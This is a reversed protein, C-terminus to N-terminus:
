PTCGQVGGLATVPSSVNWTGPVGNIFTGTVGINSITNSGYSRTTTGITTKVTAAATCLPCFGTVQKVDITTGAANFAGGRESLLFRPVGNGDYVFSAIFEYNPNVQVSYGYGPQSANFWHGSVDLNNGSVSPCGTLFAQMPESGTQGDMNYQFNFTNASTITIIAKGIPTLFNSTGNWASRSLNGSWENNAGPQVGQMYYWTPTGDELYTYWIVALQSGSPYVFLGHGPRLANYYSGVKLTPAATSTNIVAKVDVTAATGGTNSPKLYWRGPQLNGGSITITQNPGALNSNFTNAGPAAEITPGVPSALRATGLTVNGGSGATTFTVSTANAPVDFYLKNHTSGAPLTVSRAANNSLAYPEFTTGTRTLEVPIEIANSGATAQVLLFGIRSQGAIFSPDDWSIRSKFSTGTALKGPGTATLTRATGAQIPAQFSEVRILDSSGTTASKFNQVLIWYTAASDGTTVNFECIENADVGASQCLQDAEAPTTGLGVYLDLDQSAASSTKVRVKYTVPGGVPSAPIVFTDTHIGTTLGDYVNGTTPDQQLSPTSVKPTVLDAAVFHANPLAALGSFTYDFYGRETTVSQVISVPAAGPSSFIAVPLTLNPRGNGSTNQLTVSGYVWKGLLNPAGTMNFTFNVSQSQGNTFGLSSVSPTMTIGAPLSSVITYNGGGVMDTFTRPLVCSEFCSSNGLTPLNLTSATAATTAKFQADSVPLYLGARVAKSVDTQGAGIEHPTGAVGNVTVSSRATLVLASIIQSPTWTPNVAKVLAAAGGVHPTAMSTGSLSAGCNATTTSNTVCAAGSALGAAYIDVGPAAIDPKIVGTPIVPGRGSFSALKDGAIAQTSWNAEQIQGTHGTGSNLWTLFSQGDAYTLHVTPVNYDGSVLSDGESQQNYLVMGVGGALQVNKSKAVRAYFGRECAVLRNAFFTGATWTGPKSVGTATNDPDSGTACLPFAPDKALLTPGLTGTNSGAGFLTGGGPLPLNGGTLVLPRVLARDHSTAAVSLVWPSNSPNSLTGASPGDNGAAVSSVIGAARAALFAEADDDIAGGVAAYPDSPGGGISYSIVDVGDLIAQNISAVTRTSSCGSSDCAKYAIINARPAVGSITPVYPTAGGPITIKIPNGSTTGATHTGHGDTDTADGTTGSGGAVYDWLGILKNNCKASQGSVACRGVFAGKPNTITFTEGYTVGATGSASFSPHTRNIGTDIVGIIRGAGKNGVISPTGGGAWVQDAKIWAPGRDTMLRRIVEQQVRKVGPIARVQAAEAETMEAAFGHTAVDYVFTPVLTRGLKSSALELRHNREKALYKRYNQSAASNINFKLEGTVSPSTASMKPMSSKKGDSGRFSALPAEEFTVIYTKISSSKVVEVRSAANAADNAPLSLGLGITIALVLPSARM